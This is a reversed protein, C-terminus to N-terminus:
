SEGNRAAGIPNNLKFPKIKASIAIAIARCIRRSRGMAMTASKLAQIRQELLHFEGSAKKKPRPEGGATSGSIFRCM